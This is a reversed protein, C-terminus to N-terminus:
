LKKMSYSYVHGHELKRSDISRSKKKLLEDPLEIEKSPKLVVIKCIQRTTLTNIVPLYKETVSFEERETSYPTFEM